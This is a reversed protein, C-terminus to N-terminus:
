YNQVKKKKKLKLFYDIKEIMNLFYINRSINTFNENEKIQNNSIIEYYLESNQFFYKKKEM